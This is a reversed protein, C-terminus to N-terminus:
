IKGDGLILALLAACSLMGNREQEFYWAARTWDV